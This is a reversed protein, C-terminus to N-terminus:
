DQTKPFPSGPPPTNISPSPLNRVCRELDLPFDPISAMYKEGHKVFVDTTNDDLPTSLTAVYGWNVIGGTLPQLSSAEYPTGELGKRAQADVPDANAAIMM